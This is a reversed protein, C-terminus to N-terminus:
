QCALDRLESDIQLEHAAFKLASPDNDVAMTVIEKDAQLVSSAFRLALGNQSVAASVLTRNSRLERVAHELALGNRHVASMMVDHDAHLSTAAFRFAAADELLAQLVVGRDAKLRDSAFELARGNQMVAALMVESDDRIHDPAEAVFTGDPDQLVAELWQAQEPDRRLFSLELEDTEVIQRPKESDRLEREGFYIRLERAPIGTESEILRKVDRIASTADCPFTCSASLGNARVFVDQVEM